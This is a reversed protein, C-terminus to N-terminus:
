VRLVLSELEKMSEQGQSRKFDVKARKKSGNKIVKWQGGNFEMGGGTSTEKSEQFKTTFIIIWTITNTLKPVKHTTSEFFTKKTIYNIRVLTRMTSSRSQKQQLSSMRKHTKFVRIWKLLTLRRMGEVKHYQIALQNKKKLNKRFMNLFRSQKMKLSRLLLQEIEPSWEVLNLM